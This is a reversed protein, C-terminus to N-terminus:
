EMSTFIIPPEPLADTLEGVFDRKSYYGEIFPNKHDAPWLTYGDHHKTVLVCYKAGAKKILKQYLQDREQKDILNEAKQDLIIVLEM